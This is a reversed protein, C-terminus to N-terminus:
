LGGAKKMQPRRRKGPSAWALSGKGVSMHCFHNTKPGSVELAEEARQLRLGSWAPKVRNFALWWDIWKFIRYYGMLDSTIGYKNSDGVSM